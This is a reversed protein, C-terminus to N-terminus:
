SVGRRKLVTVVSQEGNATARVTITVRQLGQDGAPPCTTTFDADSAGTSGAKWYSVATTPADFGTPVALYGPLPYSTACDVYPTGSAPDPDSLAEAFSRALTDSTAHRRHSASATIATALAALLTTVAVGLIVIAILLEVLTEGREDSRSMRM